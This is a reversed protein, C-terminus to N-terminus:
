RAAARRQRDSEALIREMEARRDEAARQMDRLERASRRDQGGMWDMQERLQRNARRLDARNAPDTESASSPPSGWFNAADDNICGAALFMGTLLLGMWLSARVM